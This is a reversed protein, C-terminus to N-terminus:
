YFYDLYFLMLCFIQDRGPNQRCFSCCRHGQTNLPPM